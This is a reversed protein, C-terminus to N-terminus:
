VKGDDNRSFAAVIAALLGFIAALASLAFSYYLSMSNVNIIYHDILVQKRYHDEAFNVGYLVLGCTISMSAMMSVLLVIFKCLGICCDGCCNCCFAITALIAFVLAVALLVLGIGQTVWMTIEENGYKRCPKTGKGLGISQIDDLTCEGADKARELSKDIWNDCDSISGQCTFWLGSAYEKGAAYEIHLRSTSNYVDNTPEFRVWGPLAYSIIQAAVAVFLLICVCLM